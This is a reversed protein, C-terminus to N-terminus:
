LNRVEKFINNDWGVSARTRLGLGTRDRGLALPLYQGDAVGGVELDAFPEVPKKEDSASASQAALPLALVLCFPMLWRVM